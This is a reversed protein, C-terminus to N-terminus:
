AMTSRACGTRSMCVSGGATKSSSSGILSRSLTKRSPTTPPTGNSSSFSVRVGVNAVSPICVAKVCCGVIGGKSLAEVCGILTRRPKQHLREEHEVPPQADGYPAQSYGSDGADWVHRAKWLLDPEDQLWAGGNTLLGYLM